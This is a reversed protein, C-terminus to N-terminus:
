KIKVGVEPSFPSFVDKGGEWEEYFGAVRYYYWENPVVEEDTFFRQGGPTWALEVFNFDVGESRQILFRDAAASEWRLEAAGGESTVTVNYPAPPRDGGCALLGFLAGIFIIARGM